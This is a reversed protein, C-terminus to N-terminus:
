SALYTAITVVGESCCYALVCSALSSLGVIVLKYALYSVGVCIIM